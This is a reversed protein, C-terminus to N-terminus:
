KRSYRDRSEVKRTKFGVANHALDCFLQGYQHLDTNGFFPIVPFVLCFLPFSHLDTERGPIDQM